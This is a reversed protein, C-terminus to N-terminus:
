SLTTCSVKSIITMNNLKGIAWSQANNNKHIMLTTTKHHTKTKSFWFQTCFSFLNKVQKLRPIIHDILTISNVQYNYLHTQWM